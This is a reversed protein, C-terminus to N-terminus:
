SLNTYFCHIKRQHSTERLYFSAGERVPRGERVPGGERPPPRSQHVRKIEISFICVRKWHFFFSHWLGHQGAPPMVNKFRPGVSGEWCHLLADLLMWSRNGRQIRVIKLNFNPQPFRKEGVIVLVISSFLETPDSKCGSNFFTVGTTPELINHTRGQSWM